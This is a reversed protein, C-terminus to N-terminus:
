YNSEKSTSVGPRTNSASVYNLPDVRSGNVRVEFHLHTGTSSGSHGMKGIVQGQSVTQGAMVTISNKALHAYVTTTGDNHEIMVYNGFGGGDPNGYYGNDEYATQSSNTPYIVKGSKSAIVNIVGPGNGGNGVDMGGHVNTRFDEQVAFYSTIVTVVPTGKAFTVGNVVTTESSGIPWWHGINTSVTSYYLNVTNGSTTNGFGSIDIIGLEMLPTILIVIFMILIVFAAVVGIVILKGKLPIQNWLGSGNGSGSINSSLTDDYAESYNDQGGVSSTSDSGGMGNVLSNAIPKARSINEQSKALVSRTIPNKNVMKSAQGVVKQGARTNLAADVAAGGM